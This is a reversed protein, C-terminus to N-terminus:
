SSRGDVTDHNAIAAFSEPYFCVAVEGPGRLYGWGGFAMAQTLASTMLMLESFLTQNPWYSAVMLVQEGEKRIKCPTQTILSVPPFAYGPGPALQAITCGHRPPCPNPFVVSCFPLIGPLGVPRGSGRSSSELDAPGGLPPTEVRRLVHGTM